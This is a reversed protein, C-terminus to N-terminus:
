ADSGIAITLFYVKKAGAMKLSEAAADITAGTTYIDDVLLVNSYELPRETQFANKLNQKREKEDLDKQPKTNVTRKLIKIDVPIGLQKGMTEAIIASQNYGRKRMRKKHLPIPIIVDIEWRTIKERAYEAAFKGYFVGYEQRNGYKLKFLSQQIVSSYVFIGIGKDFYRHKTCNRCYERHDNSLPKSCKFCRPGAFPKLKKRCDRCITQGRPVVIDHCVPCRGPYLIELLTEKLM